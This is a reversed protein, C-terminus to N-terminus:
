IGGCLTRHISTEFVMEKFIVKCNILMKSLIFNEDLNASMMYGKDVNQVYLLYPQQTLIFEAIRAKTALIDVSSASGMLLRKL